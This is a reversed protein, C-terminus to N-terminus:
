AGPPGQAGGGQPPFEQRPPAQVPGPAAPPQGGPISAMLPPAMRRDPELVLTSALLDHLAQSRETFLAMLYGLWCFLKSLIRALNRGLARRFSIRRGLEDAVFIGLLMKGLTAQRPSSELLAFYLWCVLKYALIYGVLLTVPITSFLAKFFLPADFDWDMYMWPNTVVSRGVDTIILFILPVLLLGLMLKDVLYAIFRKLFSAYRTQLM